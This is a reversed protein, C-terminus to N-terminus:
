QWTAGRRWVALGSAGRALQGLSVNRLAAHSMHQSVQGDLDAGKTKGTVIPKNAVTEYAYGTLTAVIPYKTTVNLRAWGFHAEGKIVLKLGVYHNEISRDGPVGAWPGYYVSLRGSIGKVQVMSFGGVAFKPGVSVGPKLASAYSSHGWIQNRSGVPYVRLQATSGAFSTEPRAAGTFTHHTTSFRFDNIGDHNLDVYVDGNIHVNAPTYIIKAQATPMLALVSVGAASAALAYSSLNKELIATLKVASRSSRAAATHAELPTM